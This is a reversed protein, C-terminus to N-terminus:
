RPRFRPAGFDNAMHIDYKVPFNAIGHFADNELAVLVVLRYMVFCQMVVVIWSLALFMRVKAWTQPLPNDDCFIKNCAYMTLVHMSGTSEYKCPDSPDGDNHDGDLLDEDVM